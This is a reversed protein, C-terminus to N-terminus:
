EYRLSKVPDALAAKVAQYSVTMWAVLLAVLGAMLLEVGRIEIHYAFRALWADVVYYAVPLALAIGLLVLRTVEGTLLMVLHPASAGLVKRVGIEKTRQEVSFSILGFLGLCSIFIAIGAFINALTGLVIESRYAAEFDQDLFAYDFPYGPNFQKVVAELGALGEATRGPEMRLFLMSTFAPELRIIVPAIPNYLSNMDFNRVVGIVPGTRGWFSLTRGLVDGSGLITALEENIVFGPNEASYERSFARGAVVEMKMTEIFDYDASIISIEYEEDPDKGDWTAGGTSGHVALPSTNTATVGAIGPQKLLEQRVADYQEKLAGEQAMYVINDRDLGLDKNRIFQIQLYVAVTGVILLVSLGLQFVVLGKRLFAASPRQRFTGRLVALPNFSSLYLAPYSGALLGVALTGGLGVLFFGGDLAAVGFHKGTLDNFFPLLLLVIAVALGFALLTLLVSEGLFQGILSHQHAGIAKRVGIERARQASRATALNMFNIVAILLLFIAVISFIRVYEIRGGVLQGDQYESYLYMDEYPQLFLVEDAGEEYAMVVPAIQESVATPSAGERLKVYLPFSNTGWQEAWENRAFFDQIPLVVDAQFSSNAPIDEIVGTITFDKRHDITLPQGLVNGRQQWDEGFLKRATRNTIVVASEDALAAEPDGQLFPFAFVDFFAPSAYTGAERFRQEERTVVFRHGGYSFVAEEIDPYETELVEALPKVTAGWTYIEGGVNVNRWVRHIRDGEPLFRDHRVEDQVWLLIFFSCALGVALGTINIFAHGKHKIFNRAAIKVYNKLMAGRWLLETLLLRRKKLKGWYVKRYEAEATTYDGMERMTRRFAAEVASGEAVLAAVQDRVHQALEDLDDATFARNYRLSQRWAAIAKDLDFM